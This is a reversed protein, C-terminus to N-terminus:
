CTVTVSKLPHKSVAETVSKSGEGTTIEFGTTESTEQAPALSPGTETFIEPPGPLKNVKQLLPAVPVEM